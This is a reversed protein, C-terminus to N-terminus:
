NGSILSKLEATIMQRLRITLEGADAETDILDSISTAVSPDFTRESGATHYFSNVLNTGHKTDAEIMLMAQALVGQKLEKSNPPSLMIKQATGTIKLGNINLNYRGDCYSGPTEGYEPKLGLKVLARNIPECLAMYMDDLDYNSTNAQPVIISLNLIGAHLPVATGGSKRVIPPWGKSCMEIRANEYNPFRTEKKTVALCQSVEWLRATAARRGTAVERLLNTDHELAIEPENCLPEDIIRWRDHQTFIDLFHNTRQM